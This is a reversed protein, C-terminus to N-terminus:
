CSKMFGQIPWAMSFDLHQDVLPRHHVLLQVDQVAIGNERITKFLSEILIWKKFITDEKSLPNNDFSLYLTGSTSLLAAQLAIKKQTIQEEDLLTLWANILQHTNKTISDSWLLELKESKWKERYFYHLTIEKKCFSSIDTQEQQKSQSWTIVIIQNYLLFFLIASLFSLISIIIYNKIHYFM